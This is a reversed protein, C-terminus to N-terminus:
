KPFATVIVGTSGAACRVRFRGMDSPPLRLHEGVPVSAFSAPETPPAPSSHHTRVPPNTPPEPVVAVVLIRAADQEKEAATPHTARMVGVNEVVLLSGEKVWGTDLPVWGEGVTLRRHYVQEDSKLIRSYSPNVSVPANGHSQHYATGVVTIRTPPLKAQFLPPLPVPEHDVRGAKPGNPATTTDTNM